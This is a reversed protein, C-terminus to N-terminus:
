SRLEFAFKEQRAGNVVMEFYHTGPYLARTTMPKFGVPKSLRKREGPEVTVDKVAFVKVSHRGNAKRFYLRLTIRLKQRVHSLIEASWNLSEGLRVESDVQVNFCDLEPHPAYGCVALARPHDAKLLSRLAHRAMWDFEDARQQGRSGWMEILDLAQQADIKSIDNLANAVSRTVYRTDDFYLHELIDALTSLPLVVRQAWPLFPRTGESALRRVHYNDDLAWQRVHALTQAPYNQLFPRLAFESSFRQTAERLFALAVELHAERCGHAAIYEGPVVWIFDGFDNDTLKPDLPPPLAARLIAVAQNFDTPLQQGLCFVLHHIRAKLELDPFRLLAQAVFNDENFDAHSAKVARALRQVTQANFLQDKLFFKKQAKISM